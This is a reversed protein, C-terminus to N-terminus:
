TNKILSSLMSFVEVIMKDLSIIEDEKILNLEISIEIQTDIEVLSSRSIEFFRKREINSKRAAGEAINSPVSVTARRIQSTLGYAEKNPFTDTVKYILKVLEISKKWVELNKHNLSLM